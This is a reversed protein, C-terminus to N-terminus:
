GARTHRRRILLPLAAALLAAALPAPTEAAEEYSITVFLTPAAIGSTNEKAYFGTGDSFANERTLAFSLVNDTDNALYTNLAQTGSSLDAQAISFSDGDNSTPYGTRGLYIASSAMGTASGTNNGPANNWHISGEAWDDNTETLGFLRVPSGTNFTYSVLELREIGLLTAADFAAIAAAIDFKLYTKIDLADCCAATRKIQVTEGAGYNTTPNSRRIQTDAGLGISTPVAITTTVTSAQSPAPLFPACAFFIVIAVFRDVRM